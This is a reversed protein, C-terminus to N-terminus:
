FGNERKSQHNSFFWLSLLYNMCLFLLMAKLCLLSWLLLLFLYYNSVVLCLVVSRFFFYYSFSQHFVSFTFVSSDTFLYFPIYQKKAQKNMRNQQNDLSFASDFSVNTQMKHIISYYVNEKVCLSLM